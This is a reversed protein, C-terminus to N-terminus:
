DTEENGADNVAAKLEDIAEKDGETTEGLDSMIQFHYIDIATADDPIEFVDGVHVNYIGERMCVMKAM